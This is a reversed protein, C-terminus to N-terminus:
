CVTLDWEDLSGLEYWRVRVLQAEPVTNLNTSSKWLTVASEFIHRFFDEYADFRMRVNMRKSSGTLNGGDVFIMFKHM